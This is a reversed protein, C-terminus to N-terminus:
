APLANYGVGSCGEPEVYGAMRKEWFVSANGVMWREEVDSAWRRAVEAMEKAWAKVEWLDVQVRGDEAVRLGVEKPAPMATENASSLITSGSQPGKEDVYVWDPTELGDQMLDVLQHPDFGIHYASVVDDIKDIVLRMDGQGLVPHNDGPNTVSFTVRASQDPKPSRFVSTGEYIQLLRSMECQKPDLDLLNVSDPPAPQPLHPHSNILLDMISPVIDLTTSSPAQHTGPRLGPNSFFLPVRFAAETWVGLTSWFKHHEDHLALGHDGLFVFLTNDILNRENYMSWINCIYDDTSQWAQLYKNSWDDSRDESVYRRKPYEDRLQFPLHSASTLFTALTLPPVGDSPAEFQSSLWQHVHPLVEDDATGFFGFPLPPELHDLKHRAEIASYNYYRDFGLKQIVKDYEVFDDKGASFYASSAQRGRSMAFRNLAKPLPEQYSLSKPHAEIVAHDQNAPWAGAIINTFSKTTYDASATVNPVVWSSQHLSTLFPMVDTPKYPELFELGVNHVFREPNPVADERGSELVFLVVHDIRNGLYAPSTPLMVRPAAYMAEPGHHHPTSRFLKHLGELALSLVPTRILSNWPFSPRLLIVLMGYM